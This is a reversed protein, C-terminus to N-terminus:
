MYIKVMVGKERGCAYVYAMWNPKVNPLEAVDLVQMDLSDDVELVLACSPKPQVTSKETLLIKCDYDNMM